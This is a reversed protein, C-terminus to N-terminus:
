RGSDIRVHALYHEIADVTRKAVEADAARAADELNRGFESLAAFGYSGGSGALNHGVIRLRSWNGADAAARLEGLDQRRAELYELALDRLDDPVDVEISAHRRDSDSGVPTFERITSLLARKSVPKSLHGDCGADRSRQIDSPRANATLAVIPTPNRGQERELRRIARTADLGDMVPMQIDMLVLDFRQRA